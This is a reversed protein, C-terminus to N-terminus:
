NYTIFIEAADTSSADYSYAKRVGGNETPDDVIIVIADTSSYGTRDVLEQIISVLSPTQQDVGRENVTEWGPISSWSVSATTKTRGGIDSTSADFTAPANSAEGYITLSPSTGTQVSHTEFQIYASVINAEAPINLGTFRLGCVNYIAGNLGMEIDSSTLGAQAGTNRNEEGDDTSSAILASVDTNSVFKYSNLITQSQAFSCMFFLIYLIKKM